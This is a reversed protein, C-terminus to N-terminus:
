WQTDKNLGKPLLNALSISFRIRQGFGGMDGMSKYYDGYVKSYILPFYITVAEKLVSVQVGADYLFRGAAPNESWLDGYTGFDAFVRVPLRFPLVAFPNLGEPLDTTLNVAALWDDTQGLPDQLYPTSVKFFGDSVAMQQSMWGEFASRGIYYDSYTFDQAGTAGSLNFFYDRLNFSRLVNKEKLYFFKGAFGRLQLGNGKADYNLFYTGTLGARLFQDTGQLKLQLSYPYLARNDTLAAKIEGIATTTKDMVLDDNELVWSDRHLIYSKAAMKWVKDMNHNDPYWKYRLAPVIRLLRMKGGEHVHGAGDAWSNFANFAYHGADVSIQWADSARRDTFSLRGIGSLTHDGTSYLPALLFNFKGVPLGYNHVLIGPMWKDYDNYGIAPSLSLYRKTDAEKLNFLFAPKVPKHVPILAGRRAAAMQAMLSDPRAPRKAALPGPLLKKFFGAAPTNATDAPSSNESLAGKALIAVTAHAGMMLQFTTFGSADLTAAEQLVGDMRCNLGEPITLHLLLDSKAATIAGSNEVQPFWDKLYSVAEKEVYGIDILRAPLQLLFPTGIMVSDGSALAAPLTLTILEGTGTPDEEKVLAQGKVTFDLSKINGLQGTDAFYLRLDRAQLLRESLATSDSSYSNPYVRIKIQKVPATGTNRIYIKEYGTLFRLIDPAQPLGSEAQGSAFLEYHVQLSPPMDTVEKVAQACAAGPKIALVTLCSM